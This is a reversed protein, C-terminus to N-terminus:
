HQSFWSLAATLVKNRYIDLEFLLEHNAGEIVVPSGEPCSYQHYHNVQKCFDNQLKNDVIKDNGAQLVLIPTTLAPLECFLKKEVKLAETLWKFTVGGLQIEQNQAYVQSFIQYRLESHMLPNNKFANVCQTSSTNKQGFFYWPTNSLLNNVYLGLYAMAKAMNYPIAGSNIRFMPSSFVAAKISDPHVQLYRATIAGGMSHALIYPKSTNNNKLQAPSVIDRIFTHLDISYHDFSEVYGKHTNALMRASLGQGRHDAIFVNYGLRYLDFCLEQYKLYSESRGSVIIISQSNHEPPQMFYAYNLRTNNVGEFTSFVGKTWFLPIDHQHMKCLQKEQTFFVKLAPRDDSL